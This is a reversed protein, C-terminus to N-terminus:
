VCVRNVCTKGGDCAPDCYEPDPECTKSASCREDIDCEYNEVCSRTSTDSVCNGAGDCTESAECSSICADGAGNPMECAADDCNLTPQTDVPDVCARNVCTKGGTCIPDCVNPDPECQRDVCIEGATQCPNTDDCEPPPEAGFVECQEKNRCAGDSCVVEGDPCACAGNKVVKDSRCECTNTDDNWTAGSIACECTGQDLVSSDTNKCVCEGVGNGDPDSDCTKHGDEFLCKDVIRDGRVEECLIDDADWELPVCITGDSAPREGTPCACPEDTPIEIIEKAPTVLILSEEPCDIGTYSAQAFNGSEVRDMDRRDDGSKKYFELKELDGNTVNGMDDMIYVAFEDKNLVDKPSYNHILFEVKGPFSTPFSIDVLETAKKMALSNRDSIIDISDAANESYNLYLISGVVGSVGLIIIVALIESIAPVVYRM